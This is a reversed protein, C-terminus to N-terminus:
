IFQLWLPCHDSGTVQTHHEMRIMKKIDSEHCFNYDLRWGINKERSFNRYSWWTYADVQNPNFYRFVDVMRSELVLDIAAREINLFGTTFKNTSPNKLDIERHATNFDGTMILTKDPHNLKYNLALDLARFTMEIKDGVRSHDRRGNPYYGNIVICHDDEYVMLRGEMTEVNQVRFSNPATSKKVLIATGSYGKITASNLYVHYTTELISLEEQVDEPMAKIEQLCLLDPSSDRLYHQLNKKFVARLGNVNWTSLTRM